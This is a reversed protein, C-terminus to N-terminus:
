KMKNEYTKYKAFLIGAVVVVVAILLAVTYSEGTQPIQKGTATTKDSNSGKIQNTTGAVSNTDKDDTTNTNTDAVTNANTDPTTGPEQETGPTTGTGQETDPTTGPEQETDPATAAVVKFEVYPANVNGDEYYPKGTDGTIDLQTLQIKTNTVEKLAKFKLEAIAGEQLPGAERYYLVAEEDASDDGKVAFGNLGTAGLYEFVESDYVKAANFWIVGNFGNLQGISLTVTVIDGVQVNTNQTTLNFTASVDTGDAANVNTISALLVVFVLLITLSVKKM